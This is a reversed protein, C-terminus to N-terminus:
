TAYLITRAGISKKLAELNAWEEPVGILQGTTPDKKIQIHAQFNSITGEPQQTEKSHKGGM